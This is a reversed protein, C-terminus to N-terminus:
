PIAAERDHLDHPPRTGWRVHELEEGTGRHAEMRAGGGRVAAGRGRGGDGQVMQAALAESSGVAALAAFM